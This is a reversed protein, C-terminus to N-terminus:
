NVRSKKEPGGNIEGLFVTVETSGIYADEDDPDTLRINYKGYDEIKLNAFEFIFNAKGNEGIHVSLATDLIAKSAENIIQLQIKKTINKVKTKITFVIFGHPWLGITKNIMQQDFVGIINFKGNMTFEAYNCLAIIELSISKSNKM